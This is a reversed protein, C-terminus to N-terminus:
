GPRHALRFLPRLHRSNNKGDTGFYGRATLPIVRLLLDTRQEREEIMGFGFVTAVLAAGFGVVFPALVLDLYEIPLWPLGLRLAIALIPVYALMFLFFSDRSIARLDRRLLTVSASM